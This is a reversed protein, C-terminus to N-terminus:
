TTSDRSWRAGLERMLPPYVFLYRFPKILAMYFRGFWGNTRVLVAIRTVHGRDDPAISLHLVGHVTANALEAAYEDDTLYLPTFPSAPGAEPPTGRLEAPVREALSAVRGDTGHGDDDWGLLEGLRWRVAFLFRSIASPSRNPDGDAMDRVARPFTEPTLRAPIEWVDEVEFDPAIEHILWNRETHTSVPVRM